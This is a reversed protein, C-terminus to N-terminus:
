EAWEGCGKAARFEHEYGIRKLAKGAKRCYWEIVNGPKIWRNKCTPCTKM